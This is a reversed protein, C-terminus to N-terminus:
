LTNKNAFEDILADNDNDNKSLQLEQGNLFYCMTGKSYEVILLQNKRTIAGNRGLYNVGKEEDEYVKEMTLASLLSSCVPSGLRRRHRNNIHPYEITPVYEWVNEWKNWVAMEHHRDVKLSEQIKTFEEANPLYENLLEPMKHTKPNFVWRTQVDNFYYIDKLETWGVGLAEKVAEKVEAHVDYSLKSSFYINGDKQVGMENKNGEQENLVAGFVCLAWVFKIEFVAAKVCSAWLFEKEDCNFTIAANVRIKQARKNIAALKM